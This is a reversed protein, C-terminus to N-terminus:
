IEFVGCWKDREGESAGGDIDTVSISGEESWTEAGRAEEARRRVRSIACRACEGSEYGRKVSRRRIAIIHVQPDPAAFSFIGITTVLVCIALIRCTHVQVVDAGQQQRVEVAQRRRNHVGKQPSRKYGKTHPRPDRM